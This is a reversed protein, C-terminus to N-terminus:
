MFNVYFGIFLNAAKWFCDVPIANSKWESEKDKCETVCEESQFRQSGCVWRCMVLYIKTVPPTVDESPLPMIEADSALSRCALPKETVM